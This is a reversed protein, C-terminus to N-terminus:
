QIGAILKFLEIGGKYDGARYHDAVARYAEDETDAKYDMYEIELKRFEEDNTTTLLRMFFDLDM